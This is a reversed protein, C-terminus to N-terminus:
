DKKRAHAFYLQGGFPSIEVDSVTRGVAYATTEYYLPVVLAEEILYEEAKRYQALSENRNFTGAASELLEEYASQGSTYIADGDTVASIRLVASPDNYQATLPILAATWDGSAIKNYISQLPLASINVFTLLEKQWVNQFSSALLAHQGSDPVLMTFAPMSDLELRTLGRQQALRAEELEFPLIMDDGAAQRYNEGGLRVDRPVIAGAEEMYSPLVSRLATRDLSMALARRLERNSFYASQPNFVLVWTTNRLDVTQYGDDRLSDANYDHVLICDTEGTRFTYLWNEEDDVYFSVGAPLVSAADYYTLSRRTVVRYDHDWMSIYFPGNCIIAEAELGYQGGTSAFFSRPCPMAAATTLLYLFDVNPSELEFILAYDGDARVGVTTVDAQGNLALDANRICLFTEASPAATVPDFLRQFAFVFDDATVRLPESEDEDNASEATRWIADRRLYFTYTLGDPSVEYRRAAAPLLEGDEGLRLLGEFCNGIVTLAGSDNATQPDLTAPEASINMYYYQDVTPDYACGSGLLVGSVLAVALLLALTEKGIKRLFAGNGTARFRSAAALEQFARVRSRRTKM